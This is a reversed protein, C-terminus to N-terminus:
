SDGAACELSFTQKTDKNLDLYQCAINQYDNLGGLSPAALIKASIVEENAMGKGNFCLMVTPLSICIFLFFWAMYYKLMKFYLVM